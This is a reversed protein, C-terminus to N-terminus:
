AVTQEATIGSPARAPQDWALDARVVGQLQHPAAGRGQARLGVVVLDHQGDIIRVQEVGRRRRKDQM